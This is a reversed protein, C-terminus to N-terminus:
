ETSRSNTQSQSSTARRLCNDSQLECLPSVNSANLFKEIFDRVHGDLQVADEDRKDPNPKHVLYAANNHHDPKLYVPYRQRVYAKVKGCLTNATQESLGRSQKICDEPKPM